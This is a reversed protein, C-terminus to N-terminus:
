GGLSVDATAARGGPSAAVACAPAGRPTLYTSPLSSLKTQLQKMQAEAGDNLAAVFQQELSAVQSRFGVFRAYTARVEVPPRLSRLKHVSAEQLPAMRVLAALQSTTGASAPLAEVQANLSSCVANVRANFANIRSQASVTEGRNVSGCGGLLLGAAILTAPWRRRGRAGTVM